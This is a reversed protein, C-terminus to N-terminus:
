IEQRRRSSRTRSTSFRLMGGYRAVVSQPHSPLWDEIYLREISERAELVIGRVKFTRRNATRKAAPRRIRAAPVKRTPPISAAGTGDETPGGGGPNSSTWMGLREPLV